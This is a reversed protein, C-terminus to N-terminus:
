GRIDRFAAISKRQIDFITAQAELNVEGDGTEDKITWEEVPKDQTNVLPLHRSWSRMARPAVLWERVHNPRDHFGLAGNPGHYFNRWINKDREKINTALFRLVKQSQADLEYEAILKNVRDIRESESLLTTNDPNELDVTGFCSAIIGWLEDWKKLINKVVNADEETIPQKSDSEHFCICGSNKRSLNLEPFSLKILDFFVRVFSDTKLRNAGRYERLKKKPTFTDPFSGLSHGYLQAHLHFHAVGGNFKAKPFLDRPNFHQIVYADDTPLNMDVCVKHLAALLDTGIQLITQADTDSFDNLSSRAPVGDHQPLVTMMLEFPRSPSSKPFIVITYPAELQVVQLAVGNDIMEQLGADLLTHLSSRDLNARFKPVVNSSYFVQPDLEKNSM